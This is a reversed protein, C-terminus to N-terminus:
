GGIVGDVRGHGRLDEEDPVAFGVPIADLANLPM